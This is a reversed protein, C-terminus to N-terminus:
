AIYNLYIDEYWVELDPETMPDENWRLLRNVLDEPQEIVPM